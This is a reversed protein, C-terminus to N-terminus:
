HATISQLSDTKTNYQRNNYLNIHCIYGVVDDIIIIIIHKRPSNITLLLQFM